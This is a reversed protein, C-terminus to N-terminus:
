YYTQGKLDEEDDSEKDGKFKNLIVILVLVVLLALLVIFGIGLGNKLLNWSAGTNGEVVSTSLSLEKVVNDGALITVSVEHDGVVANARPTVVINVDKVEGAKISFFNTPKVEVTAFDDAGDVRVTYANARSGENAVSLSYIASAGRAVEKNVKEVVVETDPTSVLRGACQGLCKEVRVNQTYVDTSFDNDYEAVFQVEYVGPAVTAPVELSMEESPKNMTNIELDEVSVINSTAIVTGDLSVLKAFVDVRKEDTRGNNRIFVKPRLDKGAMVSQAMSVKEFVIENNKGVIYIDFDAVSQSSPSYRDFSFVRLTYNGMEVKANIDFTAEACDKVGAFYHVKAGTDARVDLQRYNGGVLAFEFYADIDQTPVFCVKAEIPEGKMIALKAGDEIKDGNLKVEISNMDLGSLASVSVASALLLVVIAIIATLTNKM